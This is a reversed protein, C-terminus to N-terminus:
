TCSQKHFQSTCKGETLFFKPKAPDRVDYAFAEWAGGESGLKIPVPERLGYPDVQWVLGSLHDFDEECSIWSGWPTPGGNCNWSTDKLLREYRLIEGTKDFTIAGVGGNWAESNSVYIWGGSNGPRNDRFVAAGDPFQHFIETSWEGNGLLVPRNSVAIVRAELGESLLLGVQRTNLKGPVYTAEIITPALSSNFRSPSM